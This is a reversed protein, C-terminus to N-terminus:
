YSVTVDIIDYKEIGAILRTYTEESPAVASMAKLVALDGGCLRWNCGDGFVRRLAEVASSGGGAYIAKAPVPRYEISASM